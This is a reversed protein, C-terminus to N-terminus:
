QIVQHAIDKRFQKGKFHVNECLEYAKKQAEEISSGTGVCVLVRGGDAMLKGDELSVGAYSIHTNEPINTISIESKPSSKYPYNESACVVGVAYDKKIKIKTHRLRKQTTALILELPNEILPMLVECEPDGFRVNFELVYPKNGVVMIGIFLVGCFESGEKKMGALTPIIIDKQIKRLLSENALSSPAYAGMGGTNPGKDGDLLKKHDQAAPLLVFDNGDCVAFISLEFGDLFEEVVILKGAEGFSEGSLMKSAEEIAEEHTKAIIVGKGACLGDAKVVIPPTLSLIFNKAKEIDNTNLFKATKIRYKKLFSKMFSKSTELMAAAKTPGFIPINHQKFIDVVGEALFSESGVICLDFEKEKAYTALVVPDKFNLNTGLSETAGNGPAFYFELNEDVRKLALAISYERAGSGLIMIKM